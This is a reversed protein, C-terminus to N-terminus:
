VFRDIAPSLNECSPPVPYYLQDMNLNGTQLLEILRNACLVMRDIDCPMAEIFDHGFKKHGVGIMYINSIAAIHINPMDMMFTMMVLIGTKEQMFISNYIGSGSPTVVMKITSWRKVTANFDSVNSDEIIWKQGEDIKTKETLAQLLEKINHILRTKGPRNIICFKYPKIGNLQFRNFVLKRLRQFGGVSYGHAYHTTGLIYLEDVLVQNGDGLDLLKIKDALGINYLFDYTAAYGTRLTPVVFGRDYIEKPVFMMANIFDHVMHGWHYWVQTYYVGIPYHGITKKQKVTFDKFQEKYTMIQFNRTAPTSSLYANKFLTIYVISRSLTDAPVEVRCLFEGNHMVVTRNYNSFNVFDVVEEMSDYNLNFFWRFGTLHNQFLVEDGSVSTKLPVCTLRNSIYIFSM